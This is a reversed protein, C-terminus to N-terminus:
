KCDGKLAAVLKEEAVVEAATPKRATMAALKFTGKRIAAIVHRMALASRILPWGYLRLMAWGKKSAAATRAVEMWFPAARATWDEEKVHRLGLRRMLNQYESPPALRPLCYERQISRISVQEHLALPPSSERLCWALMVLTGGPKLVRMCEDILKHKDPIHEASELSWVVDFTNDPFDMDLADCEINAVRDDLGAEKNLETARHAQLPSLTIGTVRAKEFRRGLFRTAGGIGCGVDLIMPKEVDSLAEPSDLGGIRLLERMTEVQAEKGKLRRDKKGGPGFYLGHHLHEGWVVEWAATRYDYFDAIDKNLNDRGFPQAMMKRMARRRLLRYVAFALVVLLWSPRRPAQSFGRINIVPLGSSDYTVNAANGFALSARTSVAWSCRAAAPSHLGRLRSPRVALDNRRWSYSRLGEGLLPMTAKGVHISPAFAVRVSAEPPLRFHSRMAQVLEPDLALREEVCIVQPSAPFLARVLACAFGGAEDAVRRGRQARLRVDVPVDNWRYERACLM